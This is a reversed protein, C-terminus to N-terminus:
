TQRDMTKPTSFLPLSPSINDRCSTSYCLLSSSFSAESHITHGHCDVSHTPPRLVRHTLISVSLCTFITGSDLGDMNELSGVSSSAGNAYCCDMWGDVRHGRGTRGGRYVKSQQTPPPPSKPHSLTFLLLDHRRSIM